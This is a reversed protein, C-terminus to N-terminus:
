IIKLGSSLQIVQMELHGQGLPKEQQRGASDSAPFLSGSQWFVLVSLEANQSLLFSIELQMMM